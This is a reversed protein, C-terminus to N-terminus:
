VREWVREEVCESDWVSASERGCVRLREWVTLRERM